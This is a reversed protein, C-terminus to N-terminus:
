AAAGQALHERSRRRPKPSPKPTVLLPAISGREFVAPVIDRIAEFNEWLASHMQEATVAVLNKDGILELLGVLMGLKEATKQIAFCDDESIQFYLM